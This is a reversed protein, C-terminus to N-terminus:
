CSIHSGKNRMVEGLQEPMSDIFMNALSMKIGEWTVIMVDILKKKAEPGLEEVRKEPDGM